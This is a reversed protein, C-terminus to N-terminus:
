ISISASNQPFRPNSNVRDVAGFGTTEVSGKEPDVVLDFAKRLMSEFVLMKLAFLLLDDFPKSSLSMRNKLSRKLLPRLADLVRDSSPFAQFPREGGGVRRLATPHFVDEVGLRVM